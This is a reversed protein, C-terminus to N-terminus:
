EVSKKDLHTKSSTDQMLICYRFCMDEELAYRTTSKAEVHDALSLQMSIYLIKIRNMISYYVCNNLM